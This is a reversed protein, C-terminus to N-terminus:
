RISFVNPCSKEIRVGTVATCVDTVHNNMHGNNGKIFGLRIISNITYVTCHVECPGQTRSSETHKKAIRINYLWHNFKSLSKYRYQKSYSSASIYYENSIGEEIIFFLSYTYKKHVEERQSQTLYM